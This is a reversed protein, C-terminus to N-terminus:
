FKEFQESIRIDDVATAKREEVWVTIEDVVYEFVYRFLPLFVHYEKIGCIQIERNSKIREFFHGFFISL